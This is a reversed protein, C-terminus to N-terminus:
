WLRCFRRFLANNLLLWHYCSQILRFCESILWDVIVSIRIFHSTFWVKWLINVNWLLWPRKGSHRYHGRVGRVARKAMLLAASVNRRAEPICKRSSPQFCYPRLYGFDFRVATKLMGLIVCWFLCKWAIQRSCEDVSCAINGDTFSMSKWLFLRYVFRYVKWPKRPIVAM